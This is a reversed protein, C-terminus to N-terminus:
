RLMYLKCAEGAIAAERWISNEQDSETFQLSILLNSPKNPNDRLHCGPQEFQVYMLELRVVM